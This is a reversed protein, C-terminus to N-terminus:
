SVSTHPVNYCSKVILSSYAISSLKTKHVSQIATALQNQRKNKITECWVNILYKKNDKKTM